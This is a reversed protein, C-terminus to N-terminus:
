AVPNEMLIGDMNRRSYKISFILPNWYKMQQSIEVTSNDLATFIRKFLRICFIFICIIESFDLKRDSKVTKMGFIQTRANFQIIRRFESHLHNQKSTTSAKTWRFGALDLGMWDCKSELEIQCISFWALLPSYRNSCSVWSAGKSRRVLIQM